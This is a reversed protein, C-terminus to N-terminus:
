AAQEKLWRAEAAMIDQTNTHNGHRNVDCTLCLTDHNRCWEYPCFTDPHNRRGCGGKGKPCTRLKPIKTTTM